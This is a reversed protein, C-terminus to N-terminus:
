GQAMLQVAGGFGGPVDANVARARAAAAVVDPRPTHQAIPHLGRRLAAWPGGAGAQFDTKTAITTGTIVFARQCGLRDIEPCAAGGSHELFSANKHSFRSPAKCAPHSGM